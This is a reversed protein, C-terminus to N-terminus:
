AVEAFSDGARFDILAIDQSSPVVFLRAIAAAHYL